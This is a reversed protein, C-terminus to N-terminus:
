LAYPIITCINCTHYIKVILLILSIIVTSSNIEATMQNYCYIELVHGEISLVVYITLHM